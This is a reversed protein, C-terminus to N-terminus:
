YRHVSRPEPAPVCADPSVRVGGAFHFSSLKLIDAVAGQGEDDIKLHRGALHPQGRDSGAAGFLVVDIMNLARNCGLRGHGFPVEDHVLEIDM